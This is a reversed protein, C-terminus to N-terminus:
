SPEKPSNILSLLISTKILGQGRDLMRISGGTLTTVIEVGDPTLHWDSFRQGGAVVWGQVEMRALADDVRSDAVPQLFWHALKASAETASHMTEYTIATALALEFVTMVPWRARDITVIEAM